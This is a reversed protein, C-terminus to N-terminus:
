HSTGSEVGKPIHFFICSFGLLCAVCRFVLIDIFYLVQFIFDPRNTSSSIRTGLSSPQLVARSVTDVVLFYGMRMSATAM